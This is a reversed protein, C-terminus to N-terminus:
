DIDDFAFGYHCFSVSAVPLSLSFLDRKGIRASRQEITILRGKFLVFPCVLEQTQDDRLVNNLIDRYCPYHTLLIFPLPLSFLYRKNIPGPAVNSVLRGKSLVLPCM